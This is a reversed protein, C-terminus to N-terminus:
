PCSGYIHFGGMVGWLLPINHTSVFLPALESAPSRLGARHCPLGRSNRYQVPVAAQRHTGM